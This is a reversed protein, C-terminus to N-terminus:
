LSLSSLVCPDSNCKASAAMCSVIVNDNVSPYGTCNSTCWSTRMRRLCSPAADYRANDWTRAYGGTPGRVIGHIYLASAINLIIQWSCAPCVLLSMVIDHCQILIYVTCAM